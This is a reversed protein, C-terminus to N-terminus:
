LAAPSSALAQSPKTFAQLFMRPLERLRARVTGAALPQPTERVAPLPSVAPAVAQCGLEEFEEKASDWGAQWAVFQRTGAGHPAAFRRRGAWFAREGDQFHLLANRFPVCSVLLSQKLLSQEQM